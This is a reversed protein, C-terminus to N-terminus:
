RQFRVVAKRKNYERMTTNLNSRASATLIEEVKPFLSITILHLQGTKLNSAIRFLGPVFRERIKMPVSQFNEFFIIKGSEPDFYFNAGFCPHGKWAGANGGMSERDLLAPLSGKQSQDLMLQLNHKVIENLDGIFIEKLGM